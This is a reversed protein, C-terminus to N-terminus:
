EGKKGATETMTQRNEAQSDMGFHPHYQRIIRVFLEPAVSSFYTIPHYGDTPEQLKQHRQWDLPNDRGRVKAIWDEFEEPTTAIAEFRMYSYGEGSFQQNQGSYIGAEEAMLHLKTEMGGMAYIQSGLQPIFFSTMVTDSTIRFSLPVDTPFVLENVVAIDYEPYIFLWKWDLSVVEIEIPKKDSDLPRYPDVAYTTNWILIGLLTVIIVPIIWIVVEIKASFSWKPAYDAGVNGSRYKWPFLFAMIMVPIVVILMLIFATVIVFRETEGIPGKPYLLVLESCGSLLFLSFLILWIHRNM